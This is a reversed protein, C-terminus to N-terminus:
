IAAPMALLAEAMEAMLADADVDKSQAAQIAAIEALDLDETWDPVVLSFKM